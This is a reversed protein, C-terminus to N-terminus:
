QEDKEIAKISHGRDFLNLFKDLVIGPKTLYTVLKNKGIVSSITEDPLGFRAKSEKKILTDNFLYKGLVNGLQDKAIAIDRYHDNLEKFSKYRFLSYLLLFPAFIAKLLEAIISLIIGM